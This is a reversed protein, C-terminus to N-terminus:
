RHPDEGDGAAQAAVRVVGQQQPGGALQEPGSSSSQLEPLPQALHRGVVLVGVDLRRGCATAASRSATASPRRRGSRSARTCSVRDRARELVREVPGRPRERRVDEAALRDRHDARADPMNPATQAWASSRLTSAAIPARTTSTSSAPRARAALLEVRSPRSTSSSSRAIAARRRPRSARAASSSSAARRAGSRVRGAVRRRDRAAARGGAAAASGVLALPRRRAPGPRRGPGARLRREELFAFAEALPMSPTSPRTRRRPSRACRRRAPTSARARRGRARADQAHDRRRLAGGDCVLVARVEPRM